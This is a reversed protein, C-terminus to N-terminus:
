DNAADNAAQRRKRANAWMHNLVALVLVVVVLGVAYGAHSGHIAAHHAAATTHM